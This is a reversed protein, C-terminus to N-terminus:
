RQSTNMAQPQSELGGCPPAAVGEVGAIEEHGVSAAKIAQTDPKMEQVCAAMARELEEPLLSLIAQWLVGGIRPEIKRYGVSTAKRLAAEFSLFSNRIESASRGSNLM